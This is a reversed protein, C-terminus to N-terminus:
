KEQRPRRFLYFAALKAAPDCRRSSLPDSWDQLVFAVNRELGAGDITARRRAADVM